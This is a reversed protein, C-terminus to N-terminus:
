SFDWLTLFFSSELDSMMFLPNGVTFIWLRRIARELFFRVVKDPTISSKQFELMFACLMDWIVWLYDENETRWTWVFRCTCLKWLRIGGQRVTLIPHWFLAFQQLVIILNTGKPWKQLNLLSIQCRYFLFWLFLNNGVPKTEIVIKNKVGQTWRMWLCEACM